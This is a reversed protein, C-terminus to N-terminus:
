SIPLNQSIKIQRAASFGRFIMFLAFAHFAVPLYAGIALLLITDLIYLVMGVVFAWIELKNAWMGCLIFVGALIADVAFTIIKVASFGESGSIQDVVADLMQTIGLGAIFSLNGGFLFIISNILSLGAIWYFWNAGSKARRLLDDNDAIIKEQEPESSLNLVSM